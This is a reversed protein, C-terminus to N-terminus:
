KVEDLVTVIRDLYAIVDAYSPKQTSLENHAATLLRFAENVADLQSSLKQMETDLRAAEQAKYLNVLYAHTYPMNVLERLKDPDFRSAPVSNLSRVYADRVRQLYADWVARDGVWLAKYALALQYLIKNHRRIDKAQKRDVLFGTVSPLLGSVGAPLNPLGNIANISNVLETQATEAQDAFGTESLERLAAYAKGFQKYANIRLQIQGLLQDNHPVTPLPVNPIPGEPNRPPEPQVIVAAVTRQSFDVAELNKLNTLATIASSSVDQGRMGVKAGVKRVAAEDCGSLLLLGLLLLALLKRSNNGLRIASVQSYM